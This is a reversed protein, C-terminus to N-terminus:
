ASRSALPPCGRGHCAPHEGCHRLSPPAQRRSPLWHAVYEGAPDYHLAQAMVDFSRPRDDLGRGAILAWNGWNSAVDYDVLWHEFWAAGYRWDVDLDHVLFSAANQRARNSLYGTERLERMAADVFPMGTDGDQWRKLAARDPTGGSRGSLGGPTFLRVGAHDALWQFYERWLLEFRLWYSSRGVGYDHEYAMISQYLYRVSLTGSALWASLRSSFDEGLLGNRTDKYQDIHRKRWLWNNLRILAQIEGGETARYQDVEATLGPDSPLSGPCPPLHEPATLPTGPTIRNEVKKRFRSFSRLDRKDLGELDPKHFLRNARDVDVPISVRTQLERVDRGEYFGAQDSCVIRGARIDTALRAIQEAPKGRVMLLDSGRERLQGRMASLSRVLFRYRHPGLRNAGLGTDSFLRDDLCFVPIMEDSYAARVLAPHDHLRLDNRLWLLTRV